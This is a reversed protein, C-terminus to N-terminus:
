FAPAVEFNAAVLDDLLVGVLKISNGNGLDLMVDSGQQTARALAEAATDVGTGNLGDTDDLGLQLTILDGSSGAVFGRIEDNGNTDAFVFHDAGLGGSFTENVASSYMVDALDTGQIQTVTSLGTDGFIAKLSTKFSLDTVGDSFVLQEIGRLTDTEVPTGTAPTAVEFWRDYSVNGAVMPTTDTNDATVTLAAGTAPSAGLSEALTLTNTTTNISAIQYSGYTTPDGTGSSVSYSVYMGATLGTASAVILSTGTQNAGNVSFTGTVAHTGNDAAVSVASLADTTKVVYDIHDTDLTSTVTVASSLAPTNGAKADTIAADLGTKLAAVDTSTATYSVTVSGVTLAVVDGVEVAGSISFGATQLTHIGYTAKAGSFVVRDVNPNGAADLGSNAGGVITDNGAGPTFTDAASGGTMSDNGAGTDIFHVLNLTSGTFSVTDNGDTGTTYATDVKQNGDTDVEVTTVSATGLKVVKDSFVLEEISNLTDTGDPSGVRTDTVTVTDTGSITYDAFRGSFMARDTGAGGTISDNGAGGAFVDAASGGNLTDNGDGGAIRHAINEKGSAPAITDGASALDLGRIDILDVTGDKNLDLENTVQVLSVFRDSFQLGEINTLTDSGEATSSVTFSGLGNSVITYL